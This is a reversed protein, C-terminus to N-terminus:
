PNGTDFKGEFQHISPQPEIRFVPGTEGTAIVYHHTKFRGCEKPSAITPQFVM